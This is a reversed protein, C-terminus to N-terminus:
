KITWKELIAKSFDIELKNNFYEKQYFFTLKWDVRQSSKILIAGLKQLFPQNKQSEAMQVYFM